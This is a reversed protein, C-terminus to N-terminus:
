CARAPTFGTMHTDGAGCGGVYLVVGRVCEGVKVTRVRVRMVKGGFRETRGQGRGVQRRQRHAYERRGAVAGAAWDESSTHGERPWRDACSRCLVSAVREERM